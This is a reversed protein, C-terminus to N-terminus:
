TGLLSLVRVISDALVCTPRSQRVHGGSPWWRGGGGGGEAQLSPASSSPPGWGGWRPRSREGRGVPAVPVGRWARPRSARATRLAAQGDPSPSQKVALPAGRPRSPCVAPLHAPRAWGADKGEVVQDYVREECTLILDFLDRCNQFREPRPKIRKNRDLM